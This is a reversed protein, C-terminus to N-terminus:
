FCHNASETEFEKILSQDGLDVFTSVFKVEIDVLPYGVVTVKRFDEANDNVSSKYLEETFVIYQAFTM